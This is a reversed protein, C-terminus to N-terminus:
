VAADTRFLRWDLLPVVKHDDLIVLAETVRSAAGTASTGNRKVREAPITVIDNIGDAGLARADAGVAVIVAIRRQLEAVLTQAADFLQMLMSLTTHRTEEFARMAEQNRGSEALGLLRDALAHITAHPSEFQDLLLALRRDQSRYGYYWKGFACERPNRAKAFSAGNRISDELAAMWDLHDQRRQPLMTQMEQYEAYISRLGLHNWLSVYPLPEGEFVFHAATETGLATFDVPLPSVYRVHALPVGLIHGGVRFLLM